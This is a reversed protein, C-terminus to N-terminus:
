VKKLIALLSHQGVDNERWKIISANVFLLIPLPCGHGPLAQHPPRPPRDDGTHSPSNVACVGWRCAGRERPAGPLSTPM